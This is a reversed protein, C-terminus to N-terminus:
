RAESRRARQREFVGAVFREYHYFEIPQAAAARACADALHARMAQRLESAEDPDGVRRRAVISEYTSQILNANRGPATMCEADRLRHYVASVQGTSAFAFRRRESLELWMDWDELLPLAPDFRIGLSFLNRVVVGIVPIFNLVQLVTRDFEYNYQAFSGASSYDGGGGRVRRECVQCGGYVLDAGSESLVELCTELHHPLFVDDDDLFAVFEGAAQELGANRASPLGQNQALTVLRVRMRGRWADIVDAVSVGGDNVVVAEVDKHTQAAVSELAEGLLGPRQYTPIVVTVVAM